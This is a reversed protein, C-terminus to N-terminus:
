VLSARASRIAGVVQCRCMPCSDVGRAVWQQLCSGHFVHGCVTKVVHEDPVTDMCIPCPPYSCSPFSVVGDSSSCGLCTIADKIYANAASAIDAASCGLARLLRPAFPCWMPNMRHLMRCTVMRLSDLLTPPTSSPSPTPPPPSSPSVGGTAAREAAWALTLVQVAYRVANPTQVRYVPGSFPCSSVVLKTVVDLGSCQRFCDTGAHTAIVTLVGLANERGYRGIHHTWHAADLSVCKLLAEMVAPTNLRACLARATASTPDARDVSAAGALLRLVYVAKDLATPSAQVLLGCVVSELHATALYQRTIAPSDVVLAGLISLICNLGHPSSDTISVLVALVGLDVFVRQNRPNRWALADIAGFVGSWYVPDGIAKDRLLVVLLHAITTDSGSGPGSGSGTRSKLGSDMVLDQVATVEAASFPAHAGGCGDCRGCGPLSSDRAADIKPFVEAARAAAAVNSEHGVLLQALLGFVHPRDRLFARTNRSCGGVLYRLCRAGLAPITASFTCSLGAEVFASIEPAHVHVEPDPSYAGVMGMVWFCASALESDKHAVIAKAGNTAIAHVFGPTTAARQRLTPDGDILAGLCWMAACALSRPTTRDRALPMKLGMCFVEKPRSSPELDQSCDGDDDCYPVAITAHAVCADWIGPENAIRRQVELDGRAMVALVRMMLEQVHGDDRDECDERGVFSALCQATLGTPVDPMVDRWTRLRAADLKPFHLPTPTTSVDDVDPKPAPGPGPIRCLPPLSAVRCSAAM